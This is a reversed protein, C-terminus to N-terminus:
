YDKKHPGYLKVHIDLPELASIILPKVIEWDLGGLGCGLAPIAISKIGDQKIIEILALLGSEIYEIKSPDDYHDKTPFNYIYHYTGNLCIMYSHIKGIKLHGLVCSRKYMSYMHPYLQRFKRALGADMAGVCNVANVLADSTDFFINGDIIEVTM